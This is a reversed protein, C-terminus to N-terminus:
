ESHLNRILSKQELSPFGGFLNFLEVVGLNTGLNEPLWFRQLNVFCELVDCKLFRVWYRNCLLLM